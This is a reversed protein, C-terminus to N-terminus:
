MQLGLKDSIRANGKSDFSASNKSRFSINKLHELDTERAEGLTEWEPLYNVTEIRKVKLYLLNHAYMVDLFMDKYNSQKSWNVIVKEADIIFQPDKNKVLKDGNKQAADFAEHLTGFNIRPTEQVEKDQILQACALLTGGVMSGENLAYMVKYEPRSSWKDYLSKTKDIISVIDAPKLTNTTKGAKASIKYVKSGDKVSYDLLPENQAAPFNILSKSSINLSKFLGLNIASLAGIVETYNKMINNMSTNDILKMNSTNKAKSGMSYELLYKAYNKVPLSLSRDKSLVSDVKSYIQEPTLYNSGIIGFDRPQLVNAM